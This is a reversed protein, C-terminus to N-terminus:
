SDSIYTESSDLVSPQQLKQNFANLQNLTADTQPVILRSSPTSAASSLSSSSCPSSAPKSSRKSQLITEGCCIPFSVIICSTQQCSVSLFTDFCFM